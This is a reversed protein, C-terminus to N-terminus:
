SLEEFEKVQHIWEKFEEFNVSGGLRIVEKGEQMLMIVPVGLIDYKKMVEKNQDIDIRIIKLVDMSDVYKLMRTVSRCTGCWSAYFELLVFQNKILKQCENFTEQNYDIMM